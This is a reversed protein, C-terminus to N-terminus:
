SVLIRLFEPEEPSSEDARIVVLRPQRFVIQERVMRYKMLNLVSM